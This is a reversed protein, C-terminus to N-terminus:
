RSPSPVVDYLCKTSTSKPSFLDTTNISFSATWGRSAVLVNIQESSKTINPLIRPLETAFTACPLRWGSAASRGCALLTMAIETYAHSPM